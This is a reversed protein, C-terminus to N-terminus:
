LYVEEISLLQFSSSIISSWLRESPKFQLQRCQKSDPEDDLLNFLNLKLKLNIKSTM